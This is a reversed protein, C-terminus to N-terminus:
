PSPTQSHGPLVRYNDHAQDRTSVELIQSHDCLATLQHPVLPPNRWVSGVELREVHHQATDTDIWRLEFSGSLVLWTEDKEAHFHCSFQQGARDFHLIKGCYQDTNAWIKEHGWGKPVIKPELLM